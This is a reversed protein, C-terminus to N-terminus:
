AVTKAHNQILICRKGLAYFSIANQSNNTINTCIIKKHKQKSKSLSKSNAFKLPIKASYTYM